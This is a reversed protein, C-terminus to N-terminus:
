SSSGKRPTVASRLLRCLAEAREPIYFHEALDLATPGTKGERARADAGYRLLLAACDVHGGRAAYHIPTQDHFAEPRNPDAGARLLVELAGAAGMAAAYHLPRREDLMGLADVAAGHGILTSAAAAHDSLAAVHLPTGVWYFGLEECNAKYGCEAEPDCGAALLVNLIPASGSAAASHLATGRYYDTKLPDAGACILYRVTALQGHAAACMRPTYSPDFRPPDTESDPYQEPTGSPADVTVGRELIMQILDLRGLTAAHHVVGFRDGSSDCSKLLGPEDDIRGAFEAASTNEVWAKLDISIAM